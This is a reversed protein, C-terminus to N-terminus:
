EAECVASEIEAPEGYCDEIRASCADRQRYEQVCSGADDVNDAIEVEDLALSPDGVVGIFSGAAFRNGVLQGSFRVSTDGIRAPAGIEIMAGHFENDRVENPADSLDLVAGALFQNDAIVNDHARDRWHGIVDIGACWGGLYTKFQRDAVSVSDGVFVNRRITNYSAGFQRRIPCVQGGREGCNKYLLIAGKRNGRFASDEITNEESSDIHVGARQFSDLVEARRITTRRSGAELYIGAFARRIAVDEILVDRANQGVYIGIQESRDITVGSITIRAHGEMAGDLEDGRFFRKLDVGYRGVDRIECGAIRVDSVSREYPTRVASRERRDARHAIIQGNCDLARGSEGLYVEVDFPGGDACLTADADLVLCDHEADFASSPVCGPAAAAFSSALLCSSLDPDGRGEERVQCDLEERDPLMDGLCGLSAGALLVAGGWVASPM